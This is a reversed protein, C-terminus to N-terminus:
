KYMDSTIDPIDYFYLKSARHTRNRGEQRGAPVSEVQGPVSQGAVSMVNMVKDKKKDSLKMDSM